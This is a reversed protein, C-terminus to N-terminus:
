RPLFTFLITPPLRTIGLLLLTVVPLPPAPDVLPLDVNDEAPAGGHIALALHVDHDAALHQVPGDVAHNPGDEAQAALGKGAEGGQM